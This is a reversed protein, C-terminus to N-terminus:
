LLPWAAAVATSWALWLRDCVGSGATAMLGDCCLCYMCCCGCKNVLALWLGFSSCSADMLGHCFASLDFVSGAIAAMAGDCWPVGVFIQAFFCFTNKKNHPFDLLIM